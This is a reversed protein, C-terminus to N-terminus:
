RRLERLRADSIGLHHAVEHLVTDDVAAALREPDRFARQLPGRFITIKSAYGAGSAGYATRPVGEYLGFLGSAGARALQGPTPEAEIVIAVSGLREAFPPPIADISREVLRAFADEALETVSSRYAM